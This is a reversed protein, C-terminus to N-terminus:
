QVTTVPQPLVSSPLISPSREFLTWIALLLSFYDILLRRSLRLSFVWKRLTRKAKWVKTNEGEGVVTSIEDEDDEEEEKIEEDDDRRQEWASAGVQNEKAMRERESAEHALRLQEKWQGADDPRFIATTQRPENELDKDKEAIPPPLQSGNGSSSVPQQTNASPQQPQPAMVSAMPNSRELNQLHGGASAPASSPGSMLSMGNPLSGGDPLIKRPRGNYPMQDFSPVNPIMPMSANNLLPRNPLPNMAQPSTLYQIEQLCRFSCSVHRTLVSVYAASM